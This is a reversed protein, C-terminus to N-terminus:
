FRFGHAPRGAVRVCPRDGVSQLITSASVSFRRNVIHPKRDSKTFRRTFDHAKIGAITAPPTSPTTRRASSTRVRRTNAGLDPWPLHDEALEAPADDHMAACPDNMARALQSENIWVAKLPTKSNGTKIWIRSLRPQVMVPNNIRATFLM